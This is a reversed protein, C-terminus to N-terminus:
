GLAAVPAGEPQPVKAIYRQVAPSAEVFRYHCRKVSDFTAHVFDLGAQELRDMASMQFIWDHTAIELNVSALAMLARQRRPMDRVPLDDLREYYHRRQPRLIDDIWLDWLDRMMPSTAHRSVVHLISGPGLTQRAALLAEQFADQHVLNLPKNPAVVHVEPEWQTCLFREIGSWLQYLGYQRGTYRGSRSHGILISPRVIMTALKSQLVLREAARKTQTYTTPDREPEAHPAETVRGDVYGSSYATSIYIFRDVGREEAAALLRETQEVKVSQLQAQDFYDLCGACHIVESPGCALLVALLDANDGGPAMSVLQLRDADVVAVAAPEIALCEELIQRRVDDVAHHSRVPVILRARTRALLAAAVLRGVYGSAGTVLIREV